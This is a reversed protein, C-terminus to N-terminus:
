KNESMEYCDSFPSNKNLNFHTLAYSLNVDSHTPVLSISTNILPQASVSVLTLIILFIVPTM